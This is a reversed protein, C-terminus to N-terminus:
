VGCHYSLCYSYHGVTMGAMCVEPMSCEIGSGGKVSNVESKKVQTIFSRVQLENIKLKKM